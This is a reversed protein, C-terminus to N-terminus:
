LIPLIHNEFSRTRHSTEINPFETCKEWVSKEKSVTSEMTMRNSAVSIDYSAAWTSGDSYSGSIRNGPCEYEGTFLDYFIMDGTRQYLRFEGDQCLELYIDADKAAITEHSIMHWIGPVDGRIAKKEEKNCSIGVIIAISLFLIKWIYKINMKNDNLNYGAETPM